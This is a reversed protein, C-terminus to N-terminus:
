SLWLASYMDCSNNHSVNDVADVKAASNLLKKVIDAHGYRSAYM